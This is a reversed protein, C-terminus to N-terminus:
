HKNHKFFINPGLIPGNLGLNPGFIPKRGINETQNMQNKQFQMYRNIEIINLSLEYPFVGVPLPKESRNENIIIQILYQIM